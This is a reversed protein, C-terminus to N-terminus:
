KGNSNEISSVHKWLASINGLHLMSKPICNLSFSVSCCSITSIIKAELFSKRLGKSSSLSINGSTSDM